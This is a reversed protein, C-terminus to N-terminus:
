FVTGARILAETKLEHTRDRGTKFVLKIRVAKPLMRSTEDQWTDQWDNGDYVSFRLQQIGKVLVEEQSTDAIGDPTLTRVERVVAGSRGDDDREWDVRYSVRKAELSQMMGGEVSAVTLMFFSISSSGADTNPDADLTFQGKDTIPLYAASVLDHRIKDLVSAGKSLTCPGGVTSRMTRSATQFTQLIVGTILVAVVLAVLIEVLTFGSSSRRSDLSRTLCKM